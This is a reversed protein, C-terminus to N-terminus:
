LFAKLHEKFGILQAKGFSAWTLLRLCRPLSAPGVREIDLRPSSLWLQESLYSLDARRHTHTHTHTYDSDGGKLLGGAEEVVEAERGSQRKWGSGWLHTAPPPPPPPQPACVCRGEM